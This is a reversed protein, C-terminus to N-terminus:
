EEKRKFIIRLFDNRSFFLPEHGPIIKTNVDIKKHIKESVLSRIDDVYTLMDDAVDHIEEKDEPLNKALIAHIVWSDGKFQLSIMRINGSIAGILAQHLMLEYWNWEELTPKYLM